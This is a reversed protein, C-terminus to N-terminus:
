WAHRQHSRMERRALRRMMRRFPRAHRPQAKQRWRPAARGLWNPPSPPRAHAIFPREEIREIIIIEVTENDEDSLWSEDFQPEDFRPKDPLSEDRDYRRPMDGTTPEDRWKDHGRDRNRNALVDRRRTQVPDQLALQEAFRREWKLVQAVRRRASSADTNFVNSHYAAVAEAWDGETRKLLHSLIELGLQINRRPQWLAAPTVGMSEATDPMIQMVGRAGKIGKHDSRFDAGVKAIAMALSAPVDTDASETIIMRKIDAASNAFAPTASATILVAALIGLIRKM